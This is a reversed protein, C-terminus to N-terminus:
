STNVAPICGQGFREVTTCGVVHIRNATEDFDGRCKQVSNQKRKHTLVIIPPLRSEINVLESDNKGGANCQIQDRNHREIIGSACQVVEGLIEGKRAVSM